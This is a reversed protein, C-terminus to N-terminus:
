AAGTSEPMGLSRHRSDTDFVFTRSSAEAQNEETAVWIDVSPKLFHFAHREHRYARGGIKARRGNIRCDVVLQSERPTLRQIAQHGCATPRIDGHLVAPAGPRDIVQWGDSSVLWHLLAIDIDSSAMRGVLMMVSVDALQASYQLQALPRRSLSLEEILSDPMLLTAAISDAFAEEQMLLNAWGRNWLLDMVSPIRLMVHALEHAFLFRWKTELQSYNLYIIPASQGFDTYGHRFSTPRIAGVRVIRAIQYLDVPPEHVRGLVSSIIETEIREQRAM